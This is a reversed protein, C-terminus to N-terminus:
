ELVAPFPSTNWVRQPLRWGDLGSMQRFSAGQSIDQSNLFESFLRYNSSSHLATVQRARSGKPTCVNCPPQPYKIHNHLFIVSTHGYHLSTLKRGCHTAYARSGLEVGVQAPPFCAM